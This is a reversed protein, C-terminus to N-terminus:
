PVSWNTSQGVDYLHNITEDLTGAKKLDTYARYLQLAVRADEISDHKDQMRNAMEDGLLHWALFRLSLMRDGPIRFLNVTDYIQEPPVVLNIIEFDTKLGHGVFICGADVLRRLKIYIAKISELHHGLGDMFDEPGLGSFRTLYDVVPEAQSIYSDIFPVGSMPGDGRLCSVRGLALRAPKIVITKGRPGPRTIEQTVAVFEADIAVLGGRRLTPETRSLATFTPQFREEHPMKKAQFATLSFANSLEGARQVTQFAGEYGTDSNPIPPLREALGEATYLAICPRKWTSHATRVEAADVPRVCFDNWAYWDGDTDWHEAKENPAICPETPKGRGGGGESVAGARAGDTADTAIAADDNGVAMLGPFLTAEEKWQAKARAAQETRIKAEGAPALKTPVRFFLVLHGSGESAHPLLSQSFSVLARLSYHEVDGGGKAADDRSLHVRPKMADVAAAAGDDTPVEEAAPATPLSLSFESPLWPGDHKSEWEEMTSPPLQSTLLCLARPAARLQKTVRAHRYKSLESCWAKTSSDGCVAQALAEAFSTAGETTEAGAQDAGPRGKEAPKPLQLPLVFANYERVVPRAEVGPFTSTEQWLAGFTDDMVTRAAREGGRGGKTGGETSAETTPKAQTAALRQAYEKAVIADLSKSEGDRKAGALLERERKATAVRAAEEKSAEHEAAERVAERAEKSLQELLFACFNCIIAPLGEAGGQVYGEIDVADTLKLSRAERSQHLARQFNRPQCAAGRSRDMMHFLFGLEDSLVFNNKMLSSLCHVRLWPLEYLMLLVVNCYWNPVTNDLATLATTANHEEFSFDEALGFKGLPVTKRKLPTYQEPLTREAEKDDGAAAESEALMSARSYGPLRLNAQRNATNRFYAAPVSGIAVHSPPPLSLSKLHSEPDVCRAGRKGLLQAPWSSAHGTAKDMTPLPITGIPGDLPLHPLEDYPDPLDPQTAYPNSQLQEVPVEEQACICLSGNSGGVALLQSTASVDIACIQEGSECITLETETSASMTGHADLLQLRGSASAALIQPNGAGFFWRMSVAGDACYVEASTRMSRVDLTRLQTDFVFDQNGLPGLQSRLASACLTAGAVDMACVVQNKSPFLRARGAPRAGGARVDYV